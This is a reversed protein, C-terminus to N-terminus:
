QPKVEKWGPLTVNVNVTETLSCYYGDSDTVKLTVEQNGSSNFILVPTSTAPDDISANPATWLLDTITTGGYSTSSQTFKAGEDKSPNEPSWAFAVGPLEHKYTTFSPGATLESSFNLNDWVRIWWYYTTDYDLDDPGLLYQSASEETKGTDVIPSDPNNDDDVIVQYASQSSGADPDSFEWRLFAQKAYLSCAQEATWNPATPNAAEPSINLSSSVKYDHGSCGGAGSDACNFSIWGIGAGDEGGNWAWGSFESTSSAISVGFSIGEFDIPLDVPFDLPLGGGSPVNFNIWGDDELALIKAWGTIQGTTYNYNAIITEGAGSYPDAPPAGTDARNFSIWGINPSWAYGSIDGTEPDISVGYDITSCSDDNSCNFSIWGVNESWAYGIVNNGGVAQATEEQDKFEFYTILIASGIGIILMVVLILWTKLKFYDKM